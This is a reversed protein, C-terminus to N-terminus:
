RGEFAIGADLWDRFLSLLNAFHTVGVTFTKYENGGRKAPNNPSTMGM